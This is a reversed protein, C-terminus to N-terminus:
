RPPAGDESQIVPPSLNLPLDPLKLLNRELQDVAPEVGYPLGPPLAINFMDVMYQLTVPETDPLRVGGDAYSRLVLHMPAKHEISWKLVLAEQPSVVLLLPEIPQRSFSELFDILVFRIFHFRGVLKYKGQIAFLICVLM